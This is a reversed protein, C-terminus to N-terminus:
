SASKQPNGEDDQLAPQSEFMNSLKLLGDKYEPNKQIDKNLKKFLSCKVIIHYLHALQIFEGKPNGTLNKYIMHLKIFLHAHIFIKSLAKLDKELSKLDGFRSPAKGSRIRDTENEALSFLKYIYHLSNFVLVTNGANPGIIDLFQSLVKSKELQDLADKHYHILQYFLKWATKSFVRHKGEKCFGVLRLHIHTEKKVLEFM